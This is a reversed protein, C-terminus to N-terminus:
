IDVHLLKFVTLTKTNSLPFSSRQMKAMHCIQCVGHHRFKNCQFIAVHRMQEFSLHGLHFHWLESDSFCAIINNEAKHNTNRLLRDLAIDTEPLQMGKELCYLGKVEKGLIVARQLTHGQPLCLDPTFVVNAAYQRTLKSISMLNFQFDPFHMIDKLVLGSNLTM